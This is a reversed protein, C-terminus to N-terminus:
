RCDVAEGSHLVINNPWTAAGSTQSLSLEKAIWPDYMHHSPVMKAAHRRRELALVGCTFSLRSSISSTKEPIGHFLAGLLFPDVTALGVVYGLRRWPTTPFGLLGEASEGWTTSHM